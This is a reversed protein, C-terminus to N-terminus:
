HSPMRFRTSVALAKQIALGTRIAPDLRTATTTSVVSIGRSQGRLRTTPAFRTAELEGVAHELSGLKIKLSSIEPALELLLRRLHDSVFGPSRDLCIQLAVAIQYRRAPDDDDAGASDASLPSCGGVQLVQRALPELASMPLGSVHSVETAKPRSLGKDTLDDSASAPAVLLFLSALGSGAFFRCILPM